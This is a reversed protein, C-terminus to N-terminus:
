KTRKKTFNSLCQIEYNYSHVYRVVLDPCMDMLELVPLPVEKFTTITILICISCLIATMTYFAQIHGNFLTGQFIDPLFVCM